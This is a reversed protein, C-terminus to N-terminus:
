AYGRLAFKVEGARVKALYAPNMRGKNINGQGMNYAQIAKDMDGKFYSELWVLYKMGLIMNFYPDYINEKSYTIPLHFIDILWKATEPMLQILGMAGAHSTARTDFGSETQVFGLMLPVSLVRTDPYRVHVSKVLQEIEKPDLRTAGESVPM